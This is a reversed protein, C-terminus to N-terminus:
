AGRVGGKEAHIITSKAEEVDDREVWLELYGPSTDDDVEDPRAVAFQIGAKRLVTSWRTVLAPVGTAVMVMGDINHTM